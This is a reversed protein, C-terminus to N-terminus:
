QEKELSKTKMSRMMHAVQHALLTSLLQVPLFMAAGESDVSELRLLSYMLGSSVTADVFPAMPRYPCMFPRTLFPTSFAAVASTGAILAVQEVQLPTSSGRLARQIFLGAVAYAGVLAPVTIMDKHPPTDM